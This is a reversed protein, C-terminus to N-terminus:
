IWESLCSKYFDKIEPDVEPSNEIFPKINKGKEKLYDIAKSLKEESIRKENKMLSKYIYDYRDIDDLSINFITSSFFFVKDVLDTYMEDKRKMLKSDNIYKKILEQNIHINSNKELIELKESFNKNKLKESNIDSNTVTLAYLSSHEKSGDDNLIHEITLNDLRIPVDKQFYNCYTCLTYKVLKSNGKYNKNVNSYKLSDNADLRNYLDENQIIKSLDEFMKTIIYKFETNYKVRFLEYSYKTIISDTRNSTFNCLNFKFFYNRLNKYVINMEETNIIKKKEILNIVTSLCRSQQNRKIDFYELYENEVLFSKESVEKYSQSYQLFDNLFDDLRGIPIEEKILRYVLEKKEAKKKIYCKCFHTLLVDIDSLHNCNELIDNWSKKAKDIIDDTRPQIYKMIHNKLLEMQKLKQGRANLVEFINYIEEDQSSVIEVINISLLKSFFLDLDEFSYNSIGEYLYFFCKYYYNDKEIMKKDKTSQILEKLHKDTDVNNIALHIENDGDLSTLFTKYIYNARNTAKTEDYQSMKLYIAALLIFLTTIRQQGDVIEYDNIGVYRSDGKQETLNSLVVTGLFHSWAEGSEPEEMTFKIDNMLESWNTENWVYKRQYRPVIYQCSREFLDKVQRNETTFSM